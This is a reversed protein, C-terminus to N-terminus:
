RIGRIRIEGFAKDQRLEVLRQKALELLALFSVIVDIKEKGSKIIESFAREVREALIAQLERIKEELSIIRRINEEALKEIKPLTDYVKLFAEALSILKLREPPYFLSELGSYAERSFIFRRARGLEGFMRAFEKMKKLTELRQELEEISTEEEATAAYGPLLSRSKILLLEGAFVLFEALEDRNIEGKLSLEEIIGAYEETVKALSVENISLKEKQILELLLDLPGEFTQQKVVYM